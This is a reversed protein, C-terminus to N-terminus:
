EGKAVFFSGFDNVPAAVAGIVIEHVADILIRRDELGLRALAM